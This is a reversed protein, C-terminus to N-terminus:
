YYALLIILPGKKTFSFFSIIRKAFIELSTAEINKSRGGFIAM